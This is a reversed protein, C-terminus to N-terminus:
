MPSRATISFAAQAHADEDGVVVADAGLAHVDQAADGLLNGGVHPDDRRFLVLRPAECEIVSCSGSRTRWVPSRVKTRRPVGVSQTMMATRWKMSSWGGSRTSDPM